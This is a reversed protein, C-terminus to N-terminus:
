KQLYKYIYIYGITYPSLNNVDRNLPCLEIHINLLVNDLMQFQQIRPVNEKEKKMPQFMFLLYYEPM